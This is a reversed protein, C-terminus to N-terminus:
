MDTLVAVNAQSAPATKQRGEQPLQTPSTAQEFPKSTTREEEDGGARPITWAHRSPTHLASVYEASPPM